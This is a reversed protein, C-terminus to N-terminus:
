QNRNLKELSDLHIMYGLKKGNKVKLLGYEHDIKKISGRIATESLETIEKLKDIKTYSDKLFLM